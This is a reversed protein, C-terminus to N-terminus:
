GREQISPHSGGEPELLHAGERELNMALAESSKDALDPLLGLQHREGSGDRLAQVKGGKGQGSQRPVKGASPQGRALHVLENEKTALYLTPNAVSKFYNKSGHSEWFFLLSAEATEQKIMRPTESMEKLLIPECEKQASVFFRTDSIGLAVPFQSDKNSRYAYIDFKVADDLNQLAATRLYGQGPASRIVSENLADNLICRQKIKRGFTFETSSQYNYSVSRPQIIEEETDNDIVEWDHDIILHNSSLRRKKSIRNASFVVVNKKFALKPTKSTESTSLSQVKDRCDEHLPDHRADHSVDYFSKQNLSLQDIESSYDENESYCNKLDEFLDPVKAM